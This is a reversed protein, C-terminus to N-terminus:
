YKRIQKLQAAVLKRPTKPLLPVVDLLKLIGLDALERAKTLEGLRFVAQAGEITKKAEEFEPSGHAGKAISLPGLIAAMMWIKQRLRKNAAENLKEQDPEM